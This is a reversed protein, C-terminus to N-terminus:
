KNLCNKYGRVTTPSLNDTAYKDIFLQTLEKFTLTSNNKYKWKKQKHLLYLWNGIQMQLLHQLYINVIGKKMVCINQNGDNNDPKRKTGAM